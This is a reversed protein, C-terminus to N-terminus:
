PQEGPAPALIWMRPVDGTPCPPISRAVGKRVLGGLVRVTPATGRFGCADRVERATMPRGAAALAREAKAAAAYRETERLTKQSVPKRV